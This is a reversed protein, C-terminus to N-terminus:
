IYYIQQVDTVASQCMPCETLGALCPSCVLLHYCSKFLIERKRKRCVVCAISLWLDQTETTLLSHYNTRVPTIRLAQRVYANNCQPCRLTKGICEHCLSLHMCDMVLIDAANTFCAACVVQERLVAHLKKVLEAHQREAMTRRLHKHCSGASSLIFAAIIIFISRSPNGM